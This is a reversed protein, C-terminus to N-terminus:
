LHLFRSTLSELYHKQGNTYYLALLAGFIIVNFVLLRLLDKKIVGYEASLDSSAQPIQSSQSHGNRHKKSMSSKLFMVFRADLIANSNPQICGRALAVITPGHCSL